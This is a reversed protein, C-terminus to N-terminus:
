KRRSTLERWIFAIDPILIVLIWSLENTLLEPVQLKSLRRRGITM